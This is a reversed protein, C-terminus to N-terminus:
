LTVIVVTMTEGWPARTVGDGDPWRGGPQASNWNGSNTPLDRVDARAHDILVSAGDGRAGDTRVPM